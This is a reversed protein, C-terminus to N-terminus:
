ERLAQQILQAEAQDHQTLDHRLKEADARVRKWWAPCEVGSNILIRLTETQELLTAHQDLLAEVESALSPTQQLVHLMYGGNEEHRFISEVSEALTEVLSEVKQKDKQDITVAQILKSLAIERQQHESSLIGLNDGSSTM